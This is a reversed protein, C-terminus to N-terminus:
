SIDNFRKLLSAPFIAGHRSVNQCSELLDKYGMTLRVIPRQVMGLTKDKATEGEHALLTDTSGTSRSMTWQRGTWPTRNTGALPVSLGQTAFGNESSSKPPQEVISRVSPVSANDSPPEVDVTLSPPAHAGALSDLTTHGRETAVSDCGTVTILNGGGDSSSFRPSDGCTAPTQGDRADGAPSGDPNEASM